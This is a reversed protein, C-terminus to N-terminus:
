LGTITPVECNTFFGKKFTDTKGVLKKADKKSKGEILLLHYRGIEKQNLLAQETEFVKILETLRRKKIDEPVDDQNHYIIVKTTETLM